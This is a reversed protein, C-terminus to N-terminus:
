LVIVLFTLLTCSAMVAIDAPRFAMSRLHTRPGTGFGRTELSIALTRSRRISVLLLPLAVPVVAKLRKIFNRGELDRGRARQAQLVLDLQEQLVPIFRLSTVLMFAYLYPVKLKEVFAVVMDKPNTTALLVPITSTMVLMRLALVTCAYLGVDTVRGFGRGPFLTLVTNGEQILFVQFLFFLAALFALGKLAPWVQRLVKGAGAVALVSALLLLLPLPGRLFFAATVVALSWVVKTLPHLDHLFSASPM